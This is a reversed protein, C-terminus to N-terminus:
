GLKKRPPKQPIKFPLFDLIMATWCAYSCWGRGFILPGLIKAVLYHLAAAYFTGTSVYYFFGEIQMNERNIIGLFVLMYLGVGLQPILRAHKYRATSLGFGLSVFVGIYSFNFLYFPHVTLGMTIAITEFLLFIGAPVLYKKLTDIISVM